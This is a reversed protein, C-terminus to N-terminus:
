RGPPVPRRTASPRRRSLDVPVEAAGAHGPRGADYRPWQQALARALYGAAAPPVTVDLILLTIVIALVGDSFVELRGMSMGLHGSRYSESM